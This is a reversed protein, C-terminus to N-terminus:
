RMLPHLIPFVMDPYIVSIIEYIWPLTGKQLYYTVNRVLDGSTDLEHKRAKFVKFLLKEDECFNIRHFLRLKVMDFECRISFRDLDGRIAEFNVNSDGKKRFVARAAKHLHTEAKKMTTKNMTLIKAGYLLQPMIACCQYLRVSHGVQLGHDYFSAQIFEGLTIRSRLM